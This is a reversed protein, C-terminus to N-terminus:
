EARPPQRLGVEFCDEDIINASPTAELVRILAGVILEDTALRPDELSKKGLRLNFAKQFSAM